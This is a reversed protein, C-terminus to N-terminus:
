RSRATAVARGVHRCLLDSYCVGMLADLLTQREGGLTLSESRQAQLPAYRRARIQFANKSPDVGARVFCVLAVPFIVAVEGTVEVLMAIVFLM